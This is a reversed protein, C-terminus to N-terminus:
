GGCSVRGGCGGGGCSGSSRVTPKSGCSSIGNNISGCSSVTKKTKNTGHCGSTETTKTAQKKEYMEVISKTKNENEISKILSALSSNMINSAEQVQKLLKLQDSNMQSEENTKTNEELIHKGDWDATLNGNPHIIVEYISGLNESPESVSAKWVVNMGDIIQTHSRCVPCEGAKIKKFGYTKTFTQELFTENLNGHEKRFSVCSANVKKAFNVYRSVFSYAEDSTVCFADSYVCNLTVDIGKRAYMNCISTLKADDPIYEYRIGFFSANKDPDYHHRSINIHNVVDGVAPYVLRETVNTGNSTLVVKDYVGSEKIINLVPILYPSLSPEGGTISIQHFEDSLSNILYSVRDLYNDCVKQEKWFCFKCKCNCPGPLIISLNPNSNYLKDSKIIM